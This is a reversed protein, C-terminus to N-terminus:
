SVEYNKSNDDADMVVYVGTTSNFEQEYVFATAAGLACM